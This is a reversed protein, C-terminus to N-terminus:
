RGGVAQRVLSGIAERTKANLGLLAYATPWMEGSDLRADPNFGLTHYRVKFKSAAQFFCICKGDLYYAPMGYWIRPAFSPCVELMLEHVALALEREGAPLEDIKALVAALDAAARDAGKASKAQARKEALYEKLAAREQASLKESESM